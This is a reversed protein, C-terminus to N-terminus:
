LKERERLVRIATSRVAPDEDETLKYLTRINTNANMLVDCRVFKSPSKSLKALIKENKTNKALNWQESEKLRRLIFM